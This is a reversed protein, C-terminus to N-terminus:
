KGAPSIVLLGSLNTFRSHAMYVTGDKAVVANRVGDHTPVQAIASLQGKEDVACRKAGAEVCPFM